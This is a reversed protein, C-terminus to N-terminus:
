LYMYVSISIHIENYNLISINCCLGLVTISDITKHRKVQIKFNVYRSM